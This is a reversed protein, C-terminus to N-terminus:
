LFDTSRFWRRPHNEGGGELYGIYGRSTTRPPPLPCPLSCTFFCVCVSLLQRMAFDISLQSVIESGREGGIESWDPRGETNETRRDAVYAKPTSGVPKGQHDTISNNLAGQHVIAPETVKNTLLERENQLKSRM